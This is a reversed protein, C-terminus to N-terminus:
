PSFALFTCAAATARSKRRGSRLVHGASCCPRCNARRRHRDVSRRESIAILLRSGSCLQRRTAALALPPSQRQSDAAVPRVAETLPASSPCRGGPGMPAPRCGGAPSRARAAGQRRGSHQKWTGTRGPAQHRAVVGGRGVAVARQRREGGGSGERSSARGQAVGRQLDWGRALAGRGSRCCRCGHRHRAPADRRRGAGVQNAHMRLVAVLLGRAIHSVDVRLHPMRAISPDLSPMRRLRAAPRGQGAGHARLSLATHGAAWRGGGPLPEAPSARRRACRADAGSASCVGQRHKHPAPWHPAPTPATQAPPARPHTRMPRRHAQAAPEQPSRSSPRRRGSQRERAEGRTM